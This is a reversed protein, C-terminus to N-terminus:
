GAKEQNPLVVRLQGYRLMWRCPLSGFTAVLFVRGASFVPTVPALKGDDAYVYSARMLDHDTYDEDVSLDPIRLVSLDTTPANWVHAM